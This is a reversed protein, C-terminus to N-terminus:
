RAKPYQGARRFGFGRGHVRCEPRKVPKSEGADVGDAGCAVSRHERRMPPVSKEAATAPRFSDLDVDCTVRASGAVRNGRPVSQKKGPATISFGGAEGQMTARGPEPKAEIM